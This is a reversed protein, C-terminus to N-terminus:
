IGGFLTDTSLGLLIRGPSTNTERLNGEGFFNSRQSHGTPNIKPLRNTPRDYVHTGRSHLAGVLEAVGPTLRLPHEELCSSIADRSPRIIALRAALADEFKVDGGHGQGDM